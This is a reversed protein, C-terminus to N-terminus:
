LAILGSRFGHKVFEALVKPGITIQADPLTNQPVLGVRKCFEVLWTNFGPGWVGDAGGSKGITPVAYSPFYQLAWGQINRILEGRAGRRLYINTSVLMQADHVPTCTGSDILLKAHSPYIHWPEGPVDMRLEWKVGNWVGGFNKLLAADEPRVPNPRVDVALGYMHRAMPGPKAALISRGEKGDTALFLQYLDYLRQQEEETRVGIYVSYRNGVADNWRSLADLFPPYLNKTNGFISM